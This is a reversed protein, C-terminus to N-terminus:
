IFQLDMPSKSVDDKLSQVTIKDNESKIEKKAKETAKVAKVRLAGSLKLLKSRLKEQKALVKKKKEETFSQNAEVCARNMELFTAQLELSNALKGRLHYFHYILERTVPIISVAIMLVAASGIMLGDDIGFFNNRGGNALTDLMKRYSIGSTEIMQNFRALQEFYFADARMKTNRLEMQMTIMDPSKIFEVFQYILATTAEVCTYTYTCYELMVYNNKQNFGNEYSVHLEAINGIAHEITEVYKLIQAHTNASMLKKRGPDECLDRMVQLTSTMSGYGSYRRIDGESKTIDGFDIHSKSIVAQMMKEHYKRTVPSTTDELVTVIEALESGSVQENESLVLASEYLLPNIM